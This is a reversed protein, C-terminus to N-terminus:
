HTLLSQVIVIIRGPKHVCKNVSYSEGTFYLILSPNDGDENGIDKANASSGTTAGAVVNTLVSREAGDDDDKPPACTM